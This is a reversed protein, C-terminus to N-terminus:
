YLKGKDRERELIKIENQLKALTQHEKPLVTVGQDQKREIEAALKEAEATLRVLRELQQQSLGDHIHIHIHKSM